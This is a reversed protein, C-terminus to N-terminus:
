LGRHRPQSLYQHFRGASASKVRRSPPWVEPGEGGDSSALHRGETGRTGMSHTTGWAPIHLADRIGQTIDPRQDGAKAELCRMLLTQPCCPETNHARFNPGGRGM